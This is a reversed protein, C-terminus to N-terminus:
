LPESDKVFPELIFSLKPTLGEIVGVDIVRIINPHNFTPLIRREKEVIALEEADKIPKNFKLALIQGTSIQNVLFIVGTGGVRHPHLMQYAPTLRNRLSSLAQKLYSQDREFELLRNSGYIEGLQTMWVDIEAQDTSPSPPPISPQTM